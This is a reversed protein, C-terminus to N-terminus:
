APLSAQQLQVRTAPYKARLDGVLLIMAALVMACGVAPAIPLVLMMGILALVSAGQVLFFILMSRRDHRVIWLLFALVDALFFFREHMKPLLFPMLCASLLALALLDAADSERRRHAAVYALGAVAAAVNGLWFWHTGAVPALLQVVAWPNAATSIFAPNWEAQRLYITALDAVPWGALAAPVMALAFVLVPLGWLRLPTRLQLLRLLVFPALFIAQAKFAVGIGFWVLMPVAKRDIACVVAMVCAASWIADCQGLAPANLVVSPLLLLRLIADPQQGHGASQLLQRGALALGLTAVISLSKIVSVKSMVAVLPSFLAMLYLYPPDYNSFPIAFAGIQGHVLIHDLWPVLTDSMDRTVKPWLFAYIAVVILADLWLRRSRVPAAAQEVAEISTM